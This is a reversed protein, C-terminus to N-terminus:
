RTCLFTQEAMYVVGCGADGTQQLLKYRGIRDGAKETLPPSVAITEGPEDLRPPAGKDPLGVALLCAVCLGAPADSPM